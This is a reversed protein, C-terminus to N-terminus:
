AISTTLCFSLLWVRIYQDVLTNIPVITSESIDPGATLVPLLCIATLQYVGVTLPAYVGRDHLELATLQPM